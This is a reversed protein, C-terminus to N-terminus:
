GTYHRRRPRRAAFNSQCVTVDETKIRNALRVATTYPVEEDELGHAPVPCQVHLGGDPGKLLLHDRADEILKRSIPCSCDGWKILEMGQASLSRHAEIAPCAERRHRTSTQAAAHM